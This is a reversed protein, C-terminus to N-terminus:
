WAVREVDLRYRVRCQRALYKMTTAYPLLPDPALGGLVMVAVAVMVDYAKVVPQADLPLPTAVFQALGVLAGVDERVEIFQLLSKL